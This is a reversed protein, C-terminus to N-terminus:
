EEQRKERIYKCGGNMWSFTERQLSPYRENEEVKENREEKNRSIKQTRSRMKWGKEKRKVLIQKWSCM